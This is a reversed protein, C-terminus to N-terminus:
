IEDRETFRRGYFNRANYHDHEYFTQADYVEPDHTSERLTNRLSVEDDHLLEGRIYDPAAALQELTITPLYVIDKKEHLEALGIPILVKRNEIGFVRDELHAIIYRVKMAAPNFLVDEVEALKAGSKDRIDWGQIDPDHDAIEFDSHSLEELRRYNNTEEIDETAM